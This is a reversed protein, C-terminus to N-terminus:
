KGIKTSFLISILFKYNKYKKLLISLNRSSYFGNDMVLNINFDNFFRIQDLFLELTKVDNISGPYFSSFLPLGSKEGFLLCLNIQELKDDDRNYGAEVSNILESYSSISTIDLALYENESKKSMWLDYFEITQSYKIAGFLESIRQSSLNSNSLYTETQEVWNQCYMVPDNEVVLYYALTIIESWITSFISKLVELLGTEIAIKELLLHLGLSSVSYKHEIASYNINDSIEITIHKIDNDVIKLNDDQHKIQSNQSIVNINDLENNLLDDKTYSGFDVIKPIDYLSINNVQDISIGQKKILNIFFRNFEPKSTEPNIKGILKKRSQPRNNIDRYSFTRFIRVCGNISAQSIGAMPHGGQIALNVM